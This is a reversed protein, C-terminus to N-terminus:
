KKISFRIKVEHGDKRSRRIYCYSQEVKICCPILKSSYCRIRDELNKNSDIDARVAMPSDEPMDLSCNSIPDFTRRM